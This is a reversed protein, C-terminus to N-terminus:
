GQREQIDQEERLEVPKLQRSGESLLQYEARGIKIIYHKDMLKNVLYTINETRTMAAEQAEEQTFRMFVDDNIPNTKGFHSVLWRLFQPLPTNRNFGIKKAAELKEAQELAEDLLEMQFKYKVRCYQEWKEGELKKFSSVFNPRYQRILAERDLMISRANRGGMILGKYRKRHYLAFFRKDRFRWDIWTYGLTKIRWERLYKDLYFFNPITLINFQQFSRNSIFLKVLIVNSRDMFSRSFLSNVADDFFIAKFPTDKYKKTIRVYNKLNNVTQKEMDFDPDLHYATQAALTSKGAGEMGGFCFAWDQGFDACFKKIGDLEELYTSFPANKVM